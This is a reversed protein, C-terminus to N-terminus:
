ISAKAESLAAKIYPLKELSKKLATLDRCNASGMVVRGTLREIDYVSQLLEAIEMRRIYKDKLEEVADLRSVIDYKKLLPQDLWKRLRRAGMSTVTKDLVWLLSGKRTKDRITETLELNRRTSSDLSM